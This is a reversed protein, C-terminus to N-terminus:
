IIKENTFNDFSTPFILICLLTFARAMTASGFKTFEMGADGGGAASHQYLETSEMRATTTIDEWPRKM